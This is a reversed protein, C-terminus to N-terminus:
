VYASGRIVVKRVSGALRFRIVFDGMIRQARQVEPIALPDPAVVTYPTDDAIGGNAVGQSMVTRIDNEIITAGTRTFPIKKVNVMRFFVSEELRAVMWDIFIQEDIPSGSVMNGDQFIEIGAKRTYFNCKKARLNVKQTETLSDVTIGSGQKLDWDNSGPVEPLQSGIWVCEPYQTAANKLFVLFTREYNLDSLASAVDTTATTLVDADATAAGYIKRRAEVAAAIELIDAKVRTEATVAYWQDNEAEAADIADTYTETSAANVLTLNNSATISWNSGPTVPAVEFTGDLNDTFTVGTVPAANYATKLGAAIEVATASVDSTYTFVTPTVSSPGAITVTYATSNSVTAVSGAVEDVQRRGVVISPPKIEQSFTALAMKYVTDTSKFDEALGTISTYTRTREAFNTFTALIMPINFSATDITATERSIVVEVIDSLDNAM